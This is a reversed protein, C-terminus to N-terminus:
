SFNLSQFILKSKSILRFRKLTYFFVSFECHVDISGTKNAEGVVNQAFCTYNTADSPYLNRITMELYGPYKSVSIRGQEQLEFWLSLSVFKGLSTSTTKIIMVDKLFNIVCQRYVIGQSHCTSFLLQFPSDVCQFSRTHGHVHHEQSLVAHVFFYSVSTVM